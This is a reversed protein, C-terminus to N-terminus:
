VLCIWSDIWNNRNKNFLMIFPMFSELILVLDWILFIFKNLHLIMHSKNINHFIINFSNIEGNILSVRMRRLVLSGHNIVLFNILIILIINISIIRNYDIDM